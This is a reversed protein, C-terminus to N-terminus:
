TVVKWHYGYISDEVINSLLENLKDDKLMGYVMINAAAELDRHHTTPFNFLGLTEKLPRKVVKKVGTNDILENKYLEKHMKSVLVRMKDDQSYNNGRERFKEVFIRCRKKRAVNDLKDNIFWHVSRVHDVAGVIAEHHVQLERATTDVALHVVGTTHLGPDVGFFDLMPM